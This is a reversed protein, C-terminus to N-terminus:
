KKTALGIVVKVAEDVAEMLRHAERSARFQKGDIELTVHIEHVVSRETQHVPKRTLKLQSFNGCKTEINEVSKVIVADFDEQQSATIDSFGETIVQQDEM